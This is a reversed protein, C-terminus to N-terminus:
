HYSFITSSCFANQRRKGLEDHYWMRRIPLQLVSEIKLGSVPPMRGGDLSHTSRVAM